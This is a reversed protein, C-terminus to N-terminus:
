EILPNLTGNMREHWWYDTTNKRQWSRMKEQDFSDLRHKQHAEYSTKHFDKNM